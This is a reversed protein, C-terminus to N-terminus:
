SSPDTHNLSYLDKHAQALVTEPLINRIPSGGTKKAGEPQLIAISSRFVPATRKPNTPGFLVIIPIGLANALHIGGTDNGIVLTCQTLYDAFACLDTKGALNIVNKSPFDLVIKQIVPLDGTVGFLNITIGPFDTLLSKILARWFYIPWRKQPDNETSCILGITLARQTSPKAWLLPSYDPAECLGFHRLWKEWLKTQHIEAEDLTKPMPWTHTLLPRKKRSRLVGFRQPAATLFAEFDGRFSNTFLLVIDPYCHKLRRFFSFYTYYGQTKEPLPIVTDAIEITKLFPIFTPLAFLTLTVDPRSKRLVRILPLAMICDGLWNPLRIWLRTSRPLKTQGKFQLYVQTYDKKTNLNLRKGPKTQAKWRQQGWMWDACNDDSASLYAELWHTASLTIAEVTKAENLPELCLECQWFAKRKMYAILPSAKYRNCIMGPLPTTTAIRGLFPFLVGRSGANLDFLIGIWGGNSVIEMADNFGAKRSLLQIGWRERTQKVWRNLHPNDFPRFIAGFGNLEPLWLPLATFAEFLTFHPIFAVGGNPNQIVYKKYCASTGSPVTIMKQLRKESFHPSTFVFLVTEVLRRMCERAMKKQWCLPKNPFAHHLNSLTQFRRKNPFFFLLDGILICIKKMLVQPLLACWWGLIKAFFVILM